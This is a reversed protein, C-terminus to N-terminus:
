AAVLLPPARRRRTPRILTGAPASVLLRAVFWLVAAAVAVSDVVVAQFLASRAPSATSPPAARTAEPQVRYVSTPDTPSERAGADGTQLALAFSCACAVALLAIATIRRRRMYHSQGPLRYIPQSVREHNM